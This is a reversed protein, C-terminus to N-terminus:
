AGGRLVRRTERAARMEAVYEDFPQERGAEGDAIGQAMAAVTVPDHGYAVALRVAEAVFEAESGYEAVARLPISLAGAGEPDGLDLLYDGMEKGQRAARARLRAERDPPLEITVTM